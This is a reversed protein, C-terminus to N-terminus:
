SSAPSLAPEEGRLSGAAGLAPRRLLRRRLRRRLRLQRLRQDLQRRRRGRDARPLAGRGRDGGRHRPHGRQELRLPGPALCRRPRGGRPRGRRHDPGAGRARLLAGQHVGALGPRLRQQRPLQAQARLRRPRCAPHGLRVLGRRLPRSRRRRPRRAADRRPPAPWGPGGHLRASLLAPGGRQRGRRGGLPLGRQAAGPARGAGREPAPVRPPGRAAAHGAGQRGPALRPLSGAANRAQEALLLLKGDPSTALPKDLGRARRPLEHITWSDGKRELQLLRGLLGDALNVLAGRATAFVPGGLGREWDLSLPRWDKDGLGRYGLEDQSVYLSLSDTSVPQLFFFGKSDLEWCFDHARLAAPLIESLKGSALDVLMVAPPTRADYDDHISRALRAVARRGDPSAAFDLIPETNTTLRRPARASDCRSSGRPRCTSRTASWRPRTRPKRSVCRRAPEQGRRGPLAPDRRRDLRLRHRRGRARHGGRGRRRGPAAALDAARARASEPDAAAAPEKRATLFALQRGDPSWRPRRCDSEGRTLQRPTAPEEGEGLAALWLQWRYSRGEDVLARQAWAVWRGDPSVAFEAAAEQAILAEVSWESAAAGPGGRRCARRRPLLACPRVPRHRCPPVDSM